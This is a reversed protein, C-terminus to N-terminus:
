HTFHFVKKKEKREYLNNNGRKCNNKHGFYKKQCVLKNFQNFENFQNMLEILERIKDQNPCLTPDAM